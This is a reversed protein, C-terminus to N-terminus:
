GFLNEDHIAAIPLLTANYFRIHACALGILLRVLLSTETFTSPCPLPPGSPMFTSVASGIEQLPVPQTCKSWSFPLKLPRMLMCSFDVLEQNTPSSWAVISM